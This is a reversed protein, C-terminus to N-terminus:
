GEVFGYYLRTAGVGELEFRDFELSGRKGSDKYKVVCCGMSFGLVDFTKQLETTDWTKGIKNEIEDRKM